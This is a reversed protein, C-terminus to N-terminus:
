SFGDLLDHLDECCLRFRVLDEDLPNIGQPKSAVHISLLEVAEEFLEVRRHRAM